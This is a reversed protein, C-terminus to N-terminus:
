LQLEEVLDYTLTNQSGSLDGFVRGPNIRAVTQAVQAANWSTKASWLTAVVGAAHPSAMSTGSLVRSGRNSGKVPYASRIGTGPAFVNVCEGKNSYSAISDASDVAGVVLLSSSQTINQNVNSPGVLCADESGNGAATVFVIDADIAAKVVATRAGSIVGSASYNIITRAGKGAAEHQAVVWEVAKIFGSVTGSGYKDFVKVAVVNANKAVGFFKGAIVGAVHTGHGNDDDDVDDDAFNAGWTARGPRFDLHSVDIGTDLVYVVSGEGARSDYKYVYKLAATAPHSKRSLRSIGWPANLQTNVHSIHEESDQEIILTQNAKAIEQAINKTFTGIYGKIGARKLSLRHLIGDNVGWRKSLQGNQVQSEIYQRKVWEHHQVEEEKSIDSKLLVIYKDTVLHASGITVCLGLFFFIRTLISRPFLM